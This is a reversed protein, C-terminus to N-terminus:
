NLRYLDFVQGNQVCFKTGCLNLKSLNSQIVNTILMFTIKGMIWNWIVIFIINPYIYDNLTRCNQTINWQTWDMFVNIIFRFHLFLSTWCKGLMYYCFLCYREGWIMSCLLSGSIHWHCTLKIPPPFQLTQLSDGVQRLDSGFKIVYHQM